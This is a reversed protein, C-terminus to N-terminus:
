GGVLWVLLSGSYFGYRCTWARGWPRPLPPWPRTACTISPPSADWPWRSCLARRRTWRNCCLQFMQPPCLSAVSNGAASCGGCNGRALRELGADDHVSDWQAQQHRIHGSGRSRGSRWSVELCGADQLEALVGQLCLPCLVARFPVAPDVSQERGLGALPSGLWCTTRPQQPVAPRAAARCGALGGRTLLCPETGCHWSAQVMASLYASVAEADTSELDYYSPNQLLRRCPLSCIERRKFIRM